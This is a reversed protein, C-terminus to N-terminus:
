WAVGDNPDEPAAAAPLAIATATIVRGHLVLVLTRGIARAPDACSPCPGVERATGAPLARGDIVNVDVYSEGPGWPVPADPIGTRELRWSSFVVLPARPWRDEIPRALVSVEGAGKCMCNRQIPSLGETGHDVAPLSPAAAAGGRKKAVM